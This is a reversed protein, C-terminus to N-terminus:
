EGKPHINKLLTSAVLCYKIWTMWFDKAMKMMKRIWFQIIRCPVKAGRLWEAPEPRAAKVRSGRHLGIDKGAASLALTTSVPPFQPATPPWRLQLHPHHHSPIRATSDTSDQFHPFNISSTAVTQPLNAAAPLTPSPGRCKGQRQSHGLIHGEPSARFSGPKELLQRMGCILFASMPSWYPPTSTHRHWKWPSCFSFSTLLWRFKGKIKGIQSPFTRDTLRKAAVGHSQQSQEESRGYEGSSCSPEPAPDNTPIIGECHGRLKPIM